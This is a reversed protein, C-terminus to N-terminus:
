SPILETIRFGMSDEGITVIEGKFLPINSGYLILPEKIDKDLNILTGIELQLIKKFTLVAQGIEVRIQIDIDEFREKNELIQYKSKPYSSKMRDKNVGFDFTTLYKDPSPKEDMSHTIKIGFNEDNIVVEGYYIPVSNAYVIINMISEDEKSMRIIDGIELREIEKIKLKKRMIVFRLQFPIKYFKKSNFPSKETAGMKSIEPFFNILNDDNNNNNRKQNQM